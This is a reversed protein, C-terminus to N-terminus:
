VEIVGMIDDDRMVVYEGGDKDSKHKTGAYRGFLVKDGVKPKLHALDAPWESHSFAMPSVAILEGTMTAFQEKEKADEPLYLGGKTKEEVKTPEVLVNYGQVGIGAKNTMTKKGKM